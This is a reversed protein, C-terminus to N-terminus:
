PSCEKWHTAICRISSISNEGTPLQRTQHFEIKLHLHNKITSDEVRIKVCQRMTLHSASFLNLYWEIGLSSSVCHFVLVAFQRCCSNEDIAKRDTTINAGNLWRNPVYGKQSHFVRFM